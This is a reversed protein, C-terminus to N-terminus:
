LRIIKNIEIHLLIKCTVVPLLQQLKSRKVYQEYM